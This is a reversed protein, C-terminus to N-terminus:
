AFVAACWAIAAAETDCVAVELMDQTSADSALFEGSTTPTNFQINEGATQLSMSPPGFLCKSAFVCTYKEVGDVMDPAYFSVGVYAPTSKAGLVLSSVSVTSSGVTISRSKTTSGFMLQQASDKIYKVGLAITGGTAKRMFEALTSEAYLRGEAFRMELTATMADGVEQVDTYTITGATNVYKACHIGRLDFQPM